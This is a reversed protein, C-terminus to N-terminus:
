KRGFQSGQTATLVNVIAIANNEQLTVHAASSDKSVAIHEPELDQAVTARPGFIRVGAAVLDAKLSNFATFDATAPVFKHPGITPIITISGEPDVACDDDPEGENAVLVCKGDPAFTVMDPLAGVSLVAVPERHDCTNFFVVNGHEVKNDNETAVALLGGNGQLSGFNVGGGHPAMPISDLAVPHSPTRIDWVDVRNSHGNSVFM